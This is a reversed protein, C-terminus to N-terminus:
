PTTPTATPTPTISNIQSLDYPVGGVVIQPLGGVIQVSDVNGSTTTTSDKQIQVNKGILSDAQSLQQSALLSTINTSMTSTQSLATFQAMQAAMDTDSQPNMPDQSTMQTVLLKMFDNQDLTKSPVRTSGDSTAGIDSTFSTIDPITM